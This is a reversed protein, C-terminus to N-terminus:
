ARGFAQGAAARIEECTPEFAEWRERLERAFQNATGWFVKVEHLWSFYLELYEEQQPHDRPLQVTVSLRRRVHELRALIGRLIVRLNWDALSYGIFLLSSASAAHVEHPLLFSEDRSVAVLFELYDDETLVLSEPVELHGHLHFVVPQKPTPMFSGDLTVPVDNLAPDRHWRCLERSPDKGARLLADLMFGDYNTTMYLPFPLRALASHPEDDREFDPAPVGSFEHRIRYKPAVANRRTVALFQAVRALDTRDEEFPFDLEEAWRSALESALPLTGECAGAGLFPTCKGWCIEELLGAWEGDTLSDRATM